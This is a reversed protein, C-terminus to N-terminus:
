PWTFAVLNSKVCGTIDVAQILSTQGSLAPPVFGSASGNGAGDAAFIGVLLPNNVDVSLGPCIGGVPTSGAQFSHVVAVQGNPTGCSFSVSNTTGAIGPTPNSLTLSCTTSTFDAGRLDSYGGSGVLSLSGDPNTTYLADRVAYLTGNSTLAQVEGCTGSAAGADLVSATNPDITCLGIGTGAGNGCEWAYLTGNHWAMAQMGFFQTSNILTDAGTSTNVTYLFDEGIGPAASDNVAYLTGAPSFAMGRVSTLGLTAALTASGNAPDITYLSTPSGLGGAVYIDGTLPDVAMSNQQSVGSSGLFSGTGTGSDLTYVDGTWSIGIMDQAQMTPAALAIIALAFSFRM